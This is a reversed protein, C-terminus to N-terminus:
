GGDQEWKREQDWDRHGNESGGRKAESCQKGGGEFFEGLSLSSVVFFDFILILFLFGSVCVKLTRTLRGLAYCQEIPRVHPNM